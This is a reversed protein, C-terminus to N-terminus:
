DITKRITLINKEDKYEYVMDDMTLKVMFIGLGGKKRKHLPLTIDPDEKELPNYQMGSDIFTIEIALPEELMTSQITAKGVGSEYAYNAINVFLEEVAVDITMKTPMSCNATKLQEDVFALVKPLNDVIAEVEIEKMM